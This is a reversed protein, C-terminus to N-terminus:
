TVGNSDYLSETNSRHQPNSSNRKQLIVGMEKRHYLFVFRYHKQLPFTYDNQTVTM